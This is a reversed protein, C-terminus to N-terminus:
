QERLELGSGAVIAALNYGPMKLQREHNPLVTSRPYDAHSDGGERHVGTLDTGEGSSLQVFDENSAPDGGFLGSGAILDGDIGIVYADGKDLGLQEPGVASSWPAAVIEGLGPSGYFVAEDVGAGQSSQLAYSTAVSGYSHGLAVIRPDATEAAADLGQYFTALPRAADRAKTESTVDSYGRQADFNGQGTSNPTDYGIWAVTSVTTNKGAWDLQREAENKLNSAEDIMGGLSGNVTTGFGPTTVSINDATDPNGVAVAAHGREGSTMDLVLLKLDRPRDPTEPNGDSITKALETEVADLDKLKQEVYWLAADENTFTGGFINDDINDQLRKREAELRAREVPIMARNAKDRVAAPIGDVNGVWGPHQSLVYNQQEPSLADWYEKAELPTLQPAPPDTTLSGQERGTKKIDETSTADGATIEGSAAKHLVATADSDVDAAQTILARAATEIQLEARKLGEIEDAEKGATSYTVQGDDHLMMQNAAADSELKKLEAQLHEVAVETQRALEQVASVTAIEDSLDDATITFKQRAAHVSEGQWGPLQGISQLKSKVDTLTDGRSSLTTQLTSLGAVDWARIDGLDM